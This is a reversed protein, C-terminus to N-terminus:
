KNYGGEKRTRETGAVPSSTTSFSSNGVGTTAAQSEMAQGVRIRNEVNKVGSVSEAIDEARRKTSRHDVHGTLSVEGNSVSVDIDSADIFPDDSLRDNVDEKIRDDSRSYNRPGKGRHMGQENRDRERRRQAEDDGFWSSVEDSTRDWWSREESDGHGFDRHRDDNRGGRGWDYRGSNWRGSDPRGYNSRGYNGGPYSDGYGGRYSQSEDYRGRDGYRDYNAGGLRNERNQYDRRNMGQYGRDYLNRSGGRTYDGGFDSYGSSIGREATGYNYDSEGRRGYQRQNDYDGERGTNMQREYRSQWGGEGSSMGQFRGSDRHGQNESITYNPEEGYSRRGYDDNGENQQRWPEQRNRNNDAM